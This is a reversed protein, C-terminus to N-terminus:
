DHVIAPGRRLANSVPAPRFHFCNYSLSGYTQSFETLTANLHKDVCCHTKRNCAVDDALSRIEREREIYIYLKHNKNVWEVLRCVNHADM